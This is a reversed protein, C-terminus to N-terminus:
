FRTRGAELGLHGLLLNSAQPILNRCVRKRLTILGLFLGRLKTKCVSLSLLLNRLHHLIVGNLKRTLKFFQIVSVLGNAILTLSLTRYTNQQTRLSSVIAVIHLPGVHKPVHAGM